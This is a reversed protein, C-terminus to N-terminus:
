RWRDSPNGRFHPQVFFITHLARTRHIKVISHCHRLLAQTLTHRMESRQSHALYTRGKTKGEAAVRVSWWERATLTLTRAGYAM